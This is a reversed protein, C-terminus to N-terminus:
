FLGQPRRYAYEKIQSIYNCLNDSDMNGMIWLECADESSRYSPQVYEKTLIDYGNRKYYGIRRAAMETDDPEVELLRLGHLNQEAWALIRAGLKQNRLEPQVALHELYYFGDMEWYIFLAAFQEEFFVANLSMQEASDILKKLQSIERREEEPFSVEYLAILPTLIQDDSRTIRRVEIM